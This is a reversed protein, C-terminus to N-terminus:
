AYYFIDYYIIINEQQVTISYYINRRTLLSTLLSTPFRHKKKRCITIERTSSFLWHEYRSSKEEREDPLCRMTEWHAFWYHFITNEQEEERRRVQVQMPSITIGAVDIFAADILRMILLAGRLRRHRHFSRRAGGARKRLYSSINLSRIIQYRQTSSTKCRFYDREEHAQVASRMPMTQREANIHHRFTSRRYHRINKGCRRSPTILM